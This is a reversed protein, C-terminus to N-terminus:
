VGLKIWKGKVRRVTAELEKTQADFSKHGNALKTAPDFAVGYGTGGDVGISYINRVGAAALINFVGVASFYRLRITPLSLKKPRKGATTANYSILRPGLAAVKPYDLVTKDGARFRVHPYWPLCVFCNLQNIRELNDEFAEIDVFHMIHPLTIRCAHNLTIIRYKDTDLENFRDSTPGKGVVLWGRSPVGNFLSVVNTVSNFTM